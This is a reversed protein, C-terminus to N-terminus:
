GAADISSAVEYTRRGAFFAPRLIVIRGNKLQMGRMGAATFGITSM